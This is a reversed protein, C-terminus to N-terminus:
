DGLEQYIPFQATLNHVESRIQKLEKNNQSAKQIESKKTGPKFHITNLTKSILEAVNKMEKEKMGRTTISPTGLRLGSPRWPTGTGYPSTNKNTIIDVSELLEAAILGDPQKNVINLLILHKDTGETIVDFNNKLLENALVQANIITQKSYTRFEPTDAEKLAVAIGAISNIMPGGQLGPFVSKDLFEALEKRTFIISGIPGRLTKRTTMTVFDAYPFPNGEVGAAILGAEHAVDALYYAGVSKAIQGLRKYNLIRPYATGGSIILQPKIKKAQREIDDYDFRHTEPSVKYFNPKYVKSTFSIKKGNPLRWGHSLHGGHPLSMAFMKDGPNLIANYVALNAVSGTVAQVNVHWEDPSLKFLKLARHICHEEVEDMNKNGQYYRKGPYGEAYKNMLVSGVAKMVDPSTYNESPILKLQHQQYKIENKIIQHIDMSPQNYQRSISKVIPPHLSERRTTIEEVKKVSFISKSIIM